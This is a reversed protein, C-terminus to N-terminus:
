QRVEMLGTGDFRQWKRRMGAVIRAARYSWPLIEHMHDELDEQIGAFLFGGCQEDLLKAGLECHACIKATWFDGDQKGAAYRYKEGPAICRHCEGCRHTKKAVPHYQSLFEPYGDANDIMCM